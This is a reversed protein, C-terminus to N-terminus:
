EKGAADGGEEGHRPGFRGDRLRADHALRLYTALSERHVMWFHGFKLAVIKGRRAMRRIYQETYGSLAVAEEITVYESVTGQGEDMDQVMVAEGM